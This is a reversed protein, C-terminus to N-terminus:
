KLTYKCVVGGPVFAGRVDAKLINNVLAIIEKTTQPYGLRALKVLHDVIRKEEAKTFLSPRGHPLPHTKNVKDNLTAYPVKKEKAAARLGWGARVLAIASQLDEQSYAGYKGRRGMDVILHTLGQNTQKMCLNAYILM